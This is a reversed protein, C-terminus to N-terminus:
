TTQRLPDPNTSSVSRLRLEMVHRPLDSILNMHADITRQEPNSVRVNQDLCSKTSSALNSRAKADTPIINEFMEDCVPTPHPARSPHGISQRFLEDEDESSNDDADPDASHTFLSHNKSEAHISASQSEHQQILSQPNEKNPTPALPPRTAGITTSSDAKTNLASTTSTTTTNTTLTTTSNSLVRSRALDVPANTTPGKSAPKFTERIAQMSLPHSSTSTLMPAGDKQLFVEGIPSMRLWPYQQVQDEPIIGLLLDESSSLLSLSNTAFRSRSGPEPIYSTTSTPITDMLPDPVDKSVPKPDPVVMSGTLALARRKQRLEDRSRSPGISLSPPRPIPDQVETPALQVSLRRFPDTRGRSNQRIRQLPDDKNASFRKSSNPNYEEILTHDGFAQVSYDADDTADSPEREDSECNSAHQTQDDHVSSDLTTDTSTQLQANPEQTAVDEDCESIRNRSQWDAASKSKLSSQGTHQHSDQNDDTSEVAPDQESSNQDAEEQQQKERERRLKAEKYRRRREELEIVERQLQDREHQRINGIRNRSFSGIWLSDWAVRIIEDALFMKKPMEQFLAMVEALSSAALIRRELMKILALSIRLLVKNGEFFFIDWIRMTTEFPLVNVFLCLFWQMTIPELSADLSLLHAYVKPLKEQLLARLVRHEVNVGFLTTSYFDPAVLNEILHCLMWFAEEESMFLLLTAVVYNMSQCYGVEPRICAYTVLIRRLSDLFAPSNLLEHGPFTRQLDKEIQNDYASETSPLQLSIDAYTMSYRMRYERVGSLIQWLQGRLEPPIGHRVMVKVYADKRVLTTKYGVQQLYQQWAIRQKQIKPRSIEQAKKLLVDNIADVAFGYYDRSQDKGARRSPRFEADEHSAAYEALVEHRAKDKLVIRDGDGLETMIHVPTDHVPIKDMEIMDDPVSPEAVQPSFYSMVKMAPMKLVDVVPNSLIRSSRSSGDNTSSESNSTATSNSSNATDSRLRSQAETRPTRKLHLISKLRNSGSPSVM